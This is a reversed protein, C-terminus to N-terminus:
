SVGGDEDVALAGAGEVSRECAAGGQTAPVIPVVHGVSAWPRWEDDPEIAEHVDAAVQEITADMFIAGHDLACHEIFLGAVLMLSLM